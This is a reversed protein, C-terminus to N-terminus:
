DGMPNKFEIFISGGIYVQADYAFFPCLGLKTIWKRARARFKGWKASRNYVTLNPINLFARDEGAECQLFFRHEPYRECLTRVFLDDGFNESTFANVYIKKM